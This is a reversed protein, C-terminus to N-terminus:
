LVNAYLEHIVAPYSVPLQCIVLLYSVSLEHPYSVSLQLQARPSQSKVESYVVMKIDWGRITPLDQGLFTPPPRGVGRVQGEQHSPGTRAHKMVLYPEGSGLRLWQNYKSSALRKLCKQKSLATLILVYIQNQDLIYCESNFHNIVVNSYIPESPQRLTKNHCM